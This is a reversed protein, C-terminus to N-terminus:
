ASKEEVLLQTFIGVIMPDFQTGAFKHLEKIAEANSLARRYPRDSTMADYADVVSIIRAELCIEEGQLRKPYGRGDMREHHQEIITAVEKLFDVERLIDAGCTPHTQMIAFEEDTLKGPKDLISGPVGIKGIDHLIAAQRLNELREPDMQMARGVKLAYEEMRECHDGTVNDKTEISRALAEIIQVLAKKLERQHRLNSLAVGLQSAITMMLDLDDKSFINLVTSELNIVGLVESGVKIPVALEARNESLVELYRPDKRVDNLLLPERHRVVWGCVGEDLELSRSRTFYQDQGFRYGGKFVLKGEEVLYICVDHYQLTSNILNLVQRILANPEDITALEQGARLLNELKAKYDALEANRQARMYALTLQPQIQEIQHLEWTSFANKDHWNDLTIYGKLHGEIWIPIYLIAMPVGYHEFKQRTRESFKQDSKSVKNDVFPRTRGAFKAEVDEPTLFLDSFYEPSQSKVEVFEYLGKNANYIVFSSSQATPVLHFAEDVICRLIEQLSREENMMTLVRNLVSLEEVVRQRVTLRGHQFEFFFRSQIFYYGWGFVGVAILFSLFRLVGHVAGFLTLLSFWLFFAFLPAFQMLPHKWFDNRM